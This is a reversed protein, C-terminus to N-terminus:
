KLAFGAFDRVVTLYRTTGAVGLKKELSGADIPRPNTANRAWLLERERVGLVDIANRGSALARDIGIPSRFLTVFPKTNDDAGLALWAKLMDALEAGTRVIASANRLGHTELAAEIRGAVVDEADNSHLVINGSQIYTSVGEFGVSTCLARLEEMRIRNHKGVNIARLFVFYRSM